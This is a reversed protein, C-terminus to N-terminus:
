QNMDAALSLIDQYTSINSGDPTGGLAANPLLETTGSVSQPALKKGATFTSVLSSVLEKKMDADGIEYILGIGKSAIEQTFDLNSSIVTKTM